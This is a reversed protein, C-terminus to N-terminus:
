WALLCAHVAAICCGWGRGAGGGGWEECLWTRMTLVRAKAHVGRARCLLLPWAEAASLITGVLVSLRYCSFRLPTCFSCQFACWQLLPASACRVLRRASSAVLARSRRLWRACVYRDFVRRFVRSLLAYSAVFSVGSQGWGLSLSAALTSAFSAGSRGGWFFLARQADRAGERVAAFDGFDDDDASM